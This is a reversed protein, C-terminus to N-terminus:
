QQNVTRIDPRSSSHHALESLVLNGLGPFRASIPPAFLTHPALSAWSMTKPWTGRPPLVAVLEVEGVPQMNM